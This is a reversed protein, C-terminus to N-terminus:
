QSSANKCVIFFTAILRVENIASQKKVVCRQKAERLPNDHVAQTSSVQTHHQRMIFQLLKDEKKIAWTRRKLANINSLLQEGGQEGM